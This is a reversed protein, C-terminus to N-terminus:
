APPVLWLGRHTVLMTDVLGGHDRQAVELLISAGCPWEHAGMLDAVGTTVTSWTFHAARSRLSGMARLLIYAILLDHDPQAGEIQTEVVVLDGGGVEAYAFVRGAEAAGARGFLDEAAPSPDAGALHVQVMGVEALPDDHHYLRAYWPMAEYPGVDSSHALCELRLYLGEPTLAHPTRPCDSM